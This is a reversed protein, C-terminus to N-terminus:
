EGEGAKKAPMKNIARWVDIVGHAEEEVPEATNRATALISRHARRVPVGRMWAAVVIHRVWFPLSFSTGSARVLNGARDITLVSRGESSCGCTDDYNSFDARRDTSRDFAISARDEKWNGPGGVANVGDNGASWLCVIGEDEAERCADVYPQFRHGPRGGLSGTLIVKRRWKPNERVFRAADRIAATIGVSSGSGDHLVKCVALSAMGPVAIACTMSGHRADITTDSGGQVYNKRFVIGGPTMGEIVRSVGDDLHWVLFGKGADRNKETGVANHYRMTASEPFAFDLAGVGEEEPDSECRLGFTGAEAVVEAEDPDAHPYVVEEPVAYEVNRAANASRAEEDSLDVFYHGREGARDIQEEGLLANRWSAKVEEPLANWEDREEPPLVYHLRVHHTRRRRPEGTTM